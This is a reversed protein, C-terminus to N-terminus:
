LQVAIDDGELLGERTSVPLARDLEIRAREEVAEKEAICWFELAPDVLLLLPETPCPSRCQRLQRHLLPRRPLGDPGPIGPLSQERVVGGIGPCGDPQHLRQVGHAIAGAGDATAASIASGPRIPLTSTV